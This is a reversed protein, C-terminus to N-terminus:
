FTGADNLAQELKSNYIVLKEDGPYYLQKNDIFVEYIM